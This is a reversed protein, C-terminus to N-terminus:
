AMPKPGPKCHPAHIGEQPISRLDLQFAAPQEVIHLGSKHWIHKAPWCWLISPKGRPSVMSSEGLGGTAQMAGGLGKFALWCPPFKLDTAAPNRRCCFQIADEYDRRETRTPLWFCHSDGINNQHETQGGRSMLFYAMGPESIKM